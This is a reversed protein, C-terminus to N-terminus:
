VEGEEIEKLTDMMREYRESREKPTMSINRIVFEVDQELMALEANICLLDGDIREPLQKDMDIAVLWSYESEFAEKTFFDTLYAKDGKITIKSGREKIENEWIDIGKELNNLTTKDMGTVEFSAYYGKETERFKVLNINRTENKSEHEERM